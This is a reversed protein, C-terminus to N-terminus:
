SFAQRTAQQAQDVVRSKWEDTDIYFADRLQQKITHRLEEPVDLQNQLWQDARLAQMVDNMPQTGYEIAIGTYEAQLCEQYIAEFNMGSLRTSVSSGDYISTVRDGWWSRARALAFQDDRCCLIREGHGIPGLGTHLDILALHSCLQGYDQLIARWTTQSWCPAQGAYFLGQAEQHQGGSVAAQLAIMGHSAVFSAIVQEDKAQPPWADPVLARHLAQYGANVALPQLFDVFNRNLDVNEQTTRRWWSFGWPNLAHVYLVAFGQTEAYAHWTPDQLLSVQVGSGCFGEVGHCGSSIILLREADPAGFLAVDVALEEGDRGPLPLVYARTHLGKVKAAQRFKTRAEAYTQSFASQVTSM